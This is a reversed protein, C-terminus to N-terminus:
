HFRCKVNSRDRTEQGTQMQIDIASTGLSNLTHKDCERVLVATSASSARRPNLRVQSFAARPSLSRTHKRNWPPRPGLYCTLITRWCVIVRM